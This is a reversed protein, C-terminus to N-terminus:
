WTDGGTPPPWAGLAQRIVVIQGAHYSNHASLGWLLELASPHRKDEHGPPNPLPAQLADDPKEGGDDGRDHDDGCGLM